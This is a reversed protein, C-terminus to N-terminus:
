CYVLAPVPWITGNESRLINTRYVLRRLFFMQYSSGGATDWWFKKDHSFKLLEKAASGLFIVFLTTHDLFSRYEDIVYKLKAPNQSSQSNNHHYYETTTRRM